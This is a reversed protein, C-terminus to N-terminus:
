TRSRRNYKARTAAKERERARLCDEHLSESFGGPMEFYAEVVDPEIGHTSWLEALHEGTIQEPREIRRHRLFREIVKPSRELHAIYKLEEDRIIRKCRQLNTEGVLRYGGVFWQKGTEYCHLV